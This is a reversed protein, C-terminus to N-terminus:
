RAGQWTIPACMARRLHAHAAHFCPATLRNSDRPPRPPLTRPTLLGNRPQFAGGLPQAPSPYLKRVQRRAFFFIRIKKKIKQAPSSRTCKEANRIYPTSSRRESRLVRRGLPFSSPLARELMACRLFSTRLGRPRASPIPVPQAPGAADGACRPRPDGGSYTGSRGGIQRRRRLEVESSPQPGLM